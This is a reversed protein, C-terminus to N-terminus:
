EPTEKPSPLISGGIRNSWADFHDMDKDSIIGSMTLYMFLFVSSLFLALIWGMLAVVHEVSGWGEEQGNGKLPLRHRM